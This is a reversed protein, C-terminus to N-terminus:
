MVMKMWDGIEREKEENSEDAVDIEPQVKEKRM